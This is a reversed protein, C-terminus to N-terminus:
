GVHGAAKRMREKVAEYKVWDELDAGPNDELFNVLAYLDDLMVHDANQRAELSALRSKTDNLETGMRYVDESLLGFTYTINSIASQLAEVDLAPPAPRTYSAINLTRKM